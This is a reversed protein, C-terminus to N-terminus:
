PQGQCLGRAAPGEPSLPLCPGTAESLLLPASEAVGPSVAPQAPWESSELEGNIVGHIHPVNRPAAKHSSRDRPLALGTGVGSM